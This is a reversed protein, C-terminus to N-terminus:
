TDGGLKRIERRIAGFIFDDIKPGEERLKVARDFVQFAKEQLNLALLIMGYHYLHTLNEELAGAQELLALAEDYRGQKFYVWGLADLANHKFEPPSSELARSALIEAEALDKGMDALTLATGYQAIVQCYGEPFRELVQNSIALAEDQRGLARLAELQVSYAGCAVLPPVGQSLIKAATKAAEEFRRLCFHAIAYATLILYNNPYKRLLQRYHPLAQKHKGERVLNEAFRFVELSEADLESSAPGMDPLHFELAQRFEMRNPNLALAQGFCERAKRNWGKALYALGLSFIAEEHEPDLERATAFHEIATSLHKQEKWGLGLLYHAQAQPRIAVVRELYERAQDFEGVSTHISGLCLLPLDDSSGTHIARVLLEKAEPIRGEGYEILALMVLADEHNPNAELTQRLYGAAERILGQEHALEALHFALEYNRRDLAFAKKLAKISEDFHDSLILFEAEDIKARFSAFKEKKGRFLALFRSKMQMFRDRNRAEEMQEIITSEWRQHLPEEKIQGAEKLVEILASLGSRTIFTNRDLTQQSEALRTLHDLVNNLTEELNSIRELLHDEISIRPLEQEEWRLNGPLVLLKSGCKRCTQGDPPNPTLCSQCYIM